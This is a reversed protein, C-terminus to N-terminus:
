SFNFHLGEEVGLGASGVLYHRTPPRTNVAWNVYTCKSSAWITSISAERCRNFYAITTLPGSTANVRAQM